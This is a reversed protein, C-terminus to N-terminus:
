LNCMFDGCSHCDWWNTTLHQFYVALAGEHIVSRSTLEQLM